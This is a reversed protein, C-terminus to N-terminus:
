RIKLNSRIYQGDDHFGSAGHPRQEQGRGKVQRQRSGGV